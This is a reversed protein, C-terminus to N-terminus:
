AGKMAQRRQREKLALKERNNKRYKEQIARRKQRYAEIEDHGANHLKEKMRHQCSHYFSQMLLRLVCKQYNLKGRAIQNERNRDLLLYPSM